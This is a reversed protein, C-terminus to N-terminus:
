LLNAQIRASLSSKRSFAGVVSLESIAFAEHCFERFFISIGRILYITVLFNFQNQLANVHIRSSVFLYQRQTAWCVFSSITWLFFTVPNLQFKNCIWFCKESLKQRMCNKRWWGVFLEYLNSHNNWSYTFIGLANVNTSVIEIHTTAAIWNEVFHIKRM